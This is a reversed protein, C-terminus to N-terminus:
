DVEFYLEKDNFGMLLEGFHIDAIDANARSRDLRNTWYAIKAGPEVSVHGHIYM